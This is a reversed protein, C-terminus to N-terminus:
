RRWNVRKKTLLEYAEEFMPLRIRKLVLGSLAQKSNFKETERVEKFSPL